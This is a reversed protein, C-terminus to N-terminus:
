KKSKLKKFDNEHMVKYSFGKDTLQALSLLNDAEGKSMAYPSRDVFKGDKFRVLYWEYKM